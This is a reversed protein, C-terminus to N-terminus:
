DAVSLLALFEIITLNVGRAGFPRPLIIVPIICGRFLIMRIRVIGTECIEHIRLVVESFKQSTASPCLCIAAAMIELVSKGNFKNLSDGTRVLTPRQGVATRKIDGDWGADSLAL